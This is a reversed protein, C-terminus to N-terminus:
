NATGSWHTDYPRYILDFSIGGLLIDVKHGDSSLPMALIEVYANPDTILPVFLAQPSQELVTNEYLSWIQSPPAQCPLDRLPRGTYDGRSRAVIGTGILRYVFDFPDRRVDIMFVFPLIKPIAMPDIDQRAPMPNDGRTAEWYTLLHGLLAAGPRPHFGTGMVTVPQRGHRSDAPRLPFSETSPWGKSGTSLNADRM